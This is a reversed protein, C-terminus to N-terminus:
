FSTNVDQNAKYSVRMCIPLAFVEQKGVHAIIIIIFVLVVCICFFLTNSVYRKKNKIETFLISPNRYKNNTYVKSVSACQVNM